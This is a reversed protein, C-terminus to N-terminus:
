FISFVLWNKRLFKDIKKTIQFNKLILAQAPKFVQINQFNSNLNNQPKQWKM